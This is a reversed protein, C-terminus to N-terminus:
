GEAAYLDWVSMHAHLGGRCQSERPAFYAQVDGFLGPAGSAAAGDGYASDGELRVGVVHKLFLRMMVVRFVAQSVLDCSVRRLMDQTSGLRPCNEELIRLACGEEGDYLLKVLPHKTDAVNITTFVM